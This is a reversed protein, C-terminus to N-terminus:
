KKLEGLIDLPMPIMSTGSIMEMHPILEDLEWETAKICCISPDSTSESHPFDRFCHPCHASAFNIPPNQKVMERLMKVEYYLRSLLLREALEKKIQFHRYNIKRMEESNPMSM